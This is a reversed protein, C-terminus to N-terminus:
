VFAVKIPNGYIGYFNSHTVTLVKEGNADTKAFHHHHNKKKLAITAPKAHFVSKVRRSKYICNPFTPHSWWRCCKESLISRRGGSFISWKSCVAVYGTRKMEDKKQQKWKLQLVFSVSSRQTVFTFPQPQTQKILQDTHRHSGLTMAMTLHEESLVGQDPPARTHTCVPKHRCFELLRSVTSSHGPWALTPPPGHGVM